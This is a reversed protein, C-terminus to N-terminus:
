DRQRMGEQYARQAQQSTSRPLNKGSPLQEKILQQIDQDATDIQQLLQCLLDLSIKLDEYYEKELRAALNSLNFQEIELSICLEEQWAQNQLNLNTIEDMLHHRDALVQETGISRKRLLQRQQNALELMSSYLGLQQRYNQIINCILQQNM